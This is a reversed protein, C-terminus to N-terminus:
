MIIAELAICSNTHISFNLIYVTYGYFLHLRTNLFYDNTIINHLNFFIPIYYLLQDFHVYFDILMSTYHVTYVLDLKQIAAWHTM